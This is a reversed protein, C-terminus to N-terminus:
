INFSLIYFQRWVDGSVFFLHLLVCTPVNFCCVCVCVRVYLHLRTSYSHSDTFLCLLLLCMCFPSTACWGPFVCLFVCVNLCLVVSHSWCPKGPIVSNSVPLFPILCLLGPVIACCLCVCVRPAFIILHLKEADQRQVPHQLWVRLCWGARRVTLSIRDSQEFSTWRWTYIIM